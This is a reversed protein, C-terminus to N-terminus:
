PTAGPRGHAPKRFAANRTLLHTTVRAVFDEVPRSLRSGSRVGAAM